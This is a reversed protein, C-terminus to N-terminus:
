APRQRAHPEHVRGPLRDPRAGARPLRAARPRPRRDAHGEARGPAPRPSGDRRGPPSGRRRRHAARLARQTVGDIIKTLVRPRGVALEYGERRMNEILITLHLEGRGSVRFVDADGTDEVRLAVNRRCNAQQLRERIQRSTVYKGEQGAFPSTNVQFNMTLTPEDVQSPRCPRPSRSTASPRASASTTSAPSSRRHRRRRAEDLPVRELGQFALVQNIKAKGTDRRRLMVAVEDGPSCGHRPPHPRRRHPRRLEIYDLPSIQLQLPATSTTRPRCRCTSLIARSCRSCTQGSRKPDLARGARCRRPTSWPSTSSSTPRASSTSCTSPRTSSGTRAARGAPRDQEGRRDAQPGTRAGQPHRVADAADPRRGRRGAAARRRGHRARARGRRRLRRPGAHRRHQHARRAYDIACNKALITIGRERELDNSDMVREVLKEHAAFTGSQQLLRTSWRPRATTSTPSSPSTASRARCSAAPVQSPTALIAPGPEAM